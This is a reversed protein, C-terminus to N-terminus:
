SSITRDIVDFTAVTSKEVYNEPKSQITSRIYQDIIYIHRM